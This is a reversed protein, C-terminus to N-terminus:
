IYALRRVNQETLKLTLVELTFHQQEVAKFILVRSRAFKIYDMTEAPSTVSHHLKMQCQTMLYLSLSLQSLGVRERSSQDVILMLGILSVIGDDLLQIFAPYALVCSVWARGVLMRVNETSLQLCRQYEGCKYALLAEFDTTVIEAISGSKQADLQRVATLHEVASRKLLEVLESTDLQGSTVTKTQDNVFMLKGVHGLYKASSVSKFALVDAIFMESLGFFHKQLRRIEDLLPTTILRHCHNVSLCRICLYHAFLETTFSSVHQTQLQPSLATTRVYQYLM